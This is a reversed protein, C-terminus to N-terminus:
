KGRPKKRGASKGPKELEFISCGFRCSFNEVIARPDIWVNENLDGADNVYSFGVIKFRGMLIQWLSSTSFVRQANYEIRQPGIPVSLYLIGGPTPIKELNEMGTLYGDFQIRGGYRGLGFHELAHLCSLSDCRELFPKPVVGLMDCQWFRVNPIRTHLLRVDLVDIRRFSVVHAVFGDIRLGVDVHCAPRRQFIRRAM